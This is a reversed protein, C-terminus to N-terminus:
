GGGRRLEALLEQLQQELEAILVQTESSPPIGQRANREIEACYGSFQLSGLNASSSKLAHAAEAIQTLDNSKLAQRLQQLLKPADEAFLTVLRQLLSTEEEPRKIAALQSVVEGNCVPIPPAIKSLITHLQKLDFPKALYDDMGALLCAERDGKMANATLAIIPLHQGSQQELTRIQRTAEFGDMEPMQCDMLIADIGGRRYLEVAQRGDHAVVVRCGLLELMTLAVEQNVPNDEALLMTLGLPHFNPRQEAAQQRVQRGRRSKPDSSVMGVLTDYLASQRVPRQLHHRIPTDSPLEMPSSSLLVVPIEDVTSASRLRTALQLGDMDPMEHDIVALEFPYGARAAEQIASLAQHGSEVSVATMGWATLYRQLLERGTNQDDVVLVRRGRLEPWATPPISRNFHATPLLLRITFTTGVGPSSSVQIEGGMLEILQRTISLGLGTGGHKRAMSGDAQTFPDFIRELADSPIGIGTDCIELTLRLKNGESIPPHLTVSVEGKLTFKVANGVLNILVQRLRGPDGNLDFTHEPPIIALLTLGKSHAPEALMEVVEEILEGLQFDSEDLVLKDAALKSFDLINNIIELLVRGSHLINSAFKRQQRELPTTMLLEAMGLVGNMPTRIEHSMTALFESKARNAAEAEEKSRVAELMMQTLDKTQEEVQQQLEQRSRDLQEDRQQIQELMSNFGNIIRGIEDDSGSSLRLTYDREESVQSIGEKLQEMPAAIRRQMAQSYFYVGVMIIGFLLIVLQLYSFLRRYVPAMTSRLYLYGIVKEDLIVPAILSIESATLRHLEGQEVGKVWDPPQTIGQGDGRIYRAFPQWEATFLVGELIDQKAHLGRLLETANNRDDFSLAATSNTAVFSALVSLHGVLTNRYSLWEMTMYALSAVLLAAASAAIIANRIKQALTLNYFRKMM